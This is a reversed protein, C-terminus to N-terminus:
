SKRRADKIEQMIAARVASQPSNVPPLDLVAVYRRAQDDEGTVHGWAYARKATPHGRLNFVEVEGEWVTKGQFTETVPVTELHSATAGHLNLIAAELEGIYDVM